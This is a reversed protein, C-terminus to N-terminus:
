DTTFTLALGAVVARDLAERTKPPVFTKLQELSVSYARMDAEVQQLIPYTAQSDSLAIHALAIVADNVDEEFAAVAIDVDEYRDQVVLLQIETLRNGAYRARLFADEADSATLIRLDELAIKVPYLADGPLASQTTFSFFGGMLLFAVLLAMVSLLRSLGATLAQRRDARPAAASPGSAQLQAAVRDLVRVRANIEWGSDPQPHPLSRVSRATRLLEEAERSSQKEHELKRLARAVRWANLREMM